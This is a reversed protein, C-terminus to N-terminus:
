RVNKNGMEYKPISNPLRIMNSSDLDPTRINANALKGKIMKSWVKGHYCKGQGARLVPGRQRALLSSKLMGNWPKFPVWASSLHSIHYYHLYRADSLDEFIQEILELLAGKILSQSSTKKWIVTTEHWKMMCEPDNQTSSVLNVSGLGKCEVEFVKANQPAFFVQLSTLKFMNTLFKAGFISGLAM